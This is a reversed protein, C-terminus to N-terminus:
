RNLRVASGIQQALSADAGARSLGGGEAPALTILLEQTRDRKTSFFTTGDNASIRVFKWTPTVNGSSVINFKIDHTIVQQSPSAGATLDATETYQVLAAQTLWEKLKLDSQIFLTGSPNTKPVCSRGSPGLGVFDRLYYLMHLTDIRTAESSLNAGFGLSYTQGLPGTTIPTNPDGSPFSITKPIIQTISTVGPNFASNEIVTLTLTVQAAWSELWRLRRPQHFQAAMSIDRAILERVAERLECKVQGVVDNVKISTDDPEGWFEQIDPVRLGCGGLGGALVFLACIRLRRAWSKMDDQELL